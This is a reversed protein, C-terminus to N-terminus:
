FFAHRPNLRANVGMKSLILDRHFRNILGKRSAKPTPIPASKYLIHQFNNATNGFIPGLAQGWPGNPLTHEL